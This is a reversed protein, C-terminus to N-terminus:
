EYFSENTLQGWTEYQNSWLLKMRYAISTDGTIVITRSDDKYGRYFTNLTYTGSPVNTFVFNGSTDAPTTVLDGSSFQLQITAASVTSGSVYGSLSYTSDIDETDLSPPTVPTALELTHPSDINSLVSARVTSSATTGTKYDSYTTLFHKVGFINTLTKVNGIRYIFSKNSKFTPNVLQISEEEDKPFFYSFVTGTFGTDVTNYAVQVEFEDGDNVNSFYIDPSFTELQGEILPSELKPKKPVTMFTFFRGKVVLDQFSGGTIIHELTSSSLTESTSYTSNVIVKDGEDINQFNQFGIYEEPKERTFEFFSDLFYQGKDEFLEEKQTGLTKIFQEPYFYHINSTIGSADETTTYRPSSLIEQIDDKNLDINKVFNKAQSIKNVTRVINKSSINGNSDTITETEDSIIDDEKKDTPTEDFDEIFNEYDNNKLKYIHHVLKVDGSLSFTNGTFLFRFFPKNLSTFTAYPSQGYYDLTGGATSFKPVEFNFIETPPSNYSIFNNQYFYQIVDDSNGVTETRIYKYIPM